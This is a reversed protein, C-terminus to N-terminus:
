DIIRIKIIAIVIIMGNSFVQLNMIIIYYFFGKRSLFGTSLLFREAVKLNKLFVICVYKELPQPQMVGLLTLILSTLGGNNNNNTTTTTITGKYM